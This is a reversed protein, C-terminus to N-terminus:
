IMMRRARHQLQCLEITYKVHQIDEELEAKMIDPDRRNKNIAQLASFAARLPGMVLIFPRQAEIMKKVNRHVMMKSLHYPVGNGDMEM